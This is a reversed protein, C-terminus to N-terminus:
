DKLSTTRIPHSHLGLFYTLLLFSAPPLPSQNGVPVFDHGCM